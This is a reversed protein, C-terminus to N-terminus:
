EYQRNRFKEIRKLNLINSIITAIGTLLSGLGWIGGIIIGFGGAITLVIGIVSGIYSGIKSAKPSPYTGNAVKKTFALMKENHNKLNFSSM